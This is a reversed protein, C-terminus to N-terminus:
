SRVHLQREDKRERMIRRLRNVKKEKLAVLKNLNIKGVFERRM